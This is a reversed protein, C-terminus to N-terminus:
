NRIQSAHPAARSSRSAPRTAAISRTLALRPEARLSEPLELLVCTGHRDHAGAALEVVIAESAEVPATESQVLLSALVIGVGILARSLM